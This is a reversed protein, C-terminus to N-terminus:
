EGSKSDKINLKLNFGGSKSDFNFFNNSDVKPFSTNLNKIRNSMKEFQYKYDKNVDYSKKDALNKETQIRKAVNHLANVGGLMRRHEFKVQGDASVIPKTNQTGYAKIFGARDPMYEAIHVGRRTGRVIQDLNVSQNLHPTPDGVPGLFQEGVFASSRSQFLRNKGPNYQQNALAIAADAQAINGSRMSEALADFTISSLRADAEARSLSEKDTKGLYARGAIDLNKLYNQARVSNQDVNQYNVVGGKSDLQLFDKDNVIRMNSNDGAFIAAYDPQANPDFRSYLYPYKRNSGKVFQRQVPNNEASGSIGIEPDNIIKLYEGSRKDIDRFVKTTQAFDGIKDKMDEMSQAFQKTFNAANYRPFGSANTVMKMVPNMQFGNNKKSKNKSM